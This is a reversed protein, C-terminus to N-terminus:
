LYGAKKMATGAGALFAEAVAPPMEDKHSGVEGRRVFQKNKPINPNEWAFSQERKKMASFSSKRAAQELVSTERKLGAFDCIRQLEGVTDRKLDEYRVVIMEAKHPNSFWQEVHDHWKCPFLEEGTKVVNLFDLERGTLGRLYHFYSVMADRGDRLLYIVKRYEPVPQFHTKFFASKGYRRFFQKFHVDPVLDQVLSDPAIELDVGFIAASLLYQTWTNGSKPYGAIFIDDPSYDGIQHLGAAKCLDRRATENTGAKEARGKNESSFLKKLPNM